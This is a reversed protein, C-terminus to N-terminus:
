SRRMAPHQRALVPLLLRRPTLYAGAAALRNVAGPIVVARGRALGDVAARAVAASSVWMIKPLAGAAEEEDMGSREVFETAVPGPCLATVSVGSGHLEARLAQTYTLVFVKAASYGAQGPM